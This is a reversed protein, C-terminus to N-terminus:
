SDEDNDKLFDFIGGLGLLQKGVDADFSVSVYPTVTLRTDESLPFTEPDRERFLLLGTGARIYQSLRYGAGMMVSQTHFLNDRTGVDDDIGQLTIGLTFAFRRTFGGRRSLPVRKNVPRLYFNAGLYFVSESIEGAYLLGADASVYDNASTSAIAASRGTVRRGEVLGSVDSAAQKVAENGGHARDVLETFFSFVYFYDVNPDLLTGEAAVRGGGAAAVMYDLLDLRLQEGKEGVGKWAGMGMGEEELRKEVSSRFANTEGKTVTREFLFGVVYTRDPNLPAVMLQFPIVGQELEAGSDELRNWRPILGAGESNNEARELGKLRNWRSPPRVEARGSRLGIRAERAAEVVTAVLGDLEQERVFGVGELASEVRGAFRAAELQPFGDLDLVSGQAILEPESHQFLIGWDGWNWPALNSFVRSRLRSPPRVTEMVIQSLRRQLWRLDPSEATGESRVLVSDLFAWTEERVRGIAGPDDGIAFVELYEDFRAEVMRTSAPAEGTVLFPEDFPLRDLFAGAKLDVRVNRYRPTEAGSAQGLTM